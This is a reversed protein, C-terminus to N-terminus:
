TNERLFYHKRVPLGRTSGVATLLHGWKVDCCMPHDDFICVSNHKSKNPYPM